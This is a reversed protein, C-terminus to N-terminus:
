NRSPMILLALAISERATKPLQNPRWASYKAAVEGLREVYMISWRILGGALGPQQIDIMKNEKKSRRTRGLREDRRKLSRWYKSSSLPSNNLDDCDTSISRSSNLFHSRDGCSKWEPNPTTIALVDVIDLRCGNEWQVLDFNRHDIQLLPRDLESPEYRHDNPM